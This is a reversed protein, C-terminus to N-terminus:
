AEHLKTSVAHAHWTMVSRRAQQIWTTSCRRVALSVLSRHYWPPVELFSVADLDPTRTESTTSSPHTSYTASAEGARQGGPALLYREEGLLFFHLIEWHGMFTGRFTTNELGRAPVRPSGQKLIWAKRGSQCCQRRWPLQTRTPSISTGGWYKLHAKWVSLKSITRIRQTGEKEKENFQRTSQIPKFRHIFLIETLYYFLSM